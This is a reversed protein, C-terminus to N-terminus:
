RVQRTFAPWASRGRIFGALEDNAVLHRRLAREVKSDPEPCRHDFRFAAFAESLSDDFRIIAEVKQVSAPGPIFMMADRESAMLEQLAECMQRRRAIALQATTIAGQELLIHTLPTIREIEELRHFARRVDESSLLNMRLMVHEIKLRRDSLYIAAIVGGTLDLFLHHHGQYFAALRGTRQCLELSKIASWGDWARQYEIAKM